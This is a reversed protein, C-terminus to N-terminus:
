REARCGRQVILGLTPLTSLSIDLVEKQNETVARAIVADIPSNIFKARIPKTRYGNLDNNKLAKRSVPISM